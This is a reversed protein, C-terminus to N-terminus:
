MNLLIFFVGGAKKVEPKEEVKAQHSKTLRIKKGLFREYVNGLIETSIVSFGYPCFPYYLNKFIQKFVGDDINLTPTLNDADLNIGKEETFHFLGSNYKADAKKCIEIFGEYVPYSDKDNDSLDLLNKLQEYKEIGRDEAIRLFIIRDITLQVAHNLEEISLEKNRLAINKALILRWNDIEKLFEEDVESTGKKTGKQGSAFNDFDGSMVANKSFINAIEDWKEIYDTYKYYRIRGISANQNKDPRTNTEYIALEEFDTLICLPLKASWGYRRVQFAPNKDTEIDVSPKKAEVFFIRQGGIRFSYDPAKAKGGIHITDEFVVDKFRASAGSKNQVDWGLAEFFPNIFEIKTNEEDYSSSKYIHKNEDFREVLEKIIEPASGVM